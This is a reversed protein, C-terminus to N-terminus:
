SAGTHVYFNSKGDLETLENSNQGFRPMKLGYEIRMRYDTQQLNLEYGLDSIYKAISSPCISKKPDKERSPDWLLKMTFTSLSENCLTTQLRAHYKETTAVDQQQLM